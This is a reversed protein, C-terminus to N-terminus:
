DLIISHTGFGTSLREGTLDLNNPVSGLSVEKAYTFHTVTDNDHYHVTVDLNTGISAGGTSQTSGDYRAVFDDRNATTDFYLVIRDNTVSYEERLFGPHNLITESETYGAEFGPPTFTIVIDVIEDGTLDAGPENSDVSTFNIQAILTTDPVVNAVPAVGAFTLPAKVSGLEVGITDTGTSTVTANYSESGDASGTYLTIQDGSRIPSNHIGTITVSEQTRLHPSISADLSSRGNTVTGEKNHFNIRAHDTDSDWAVISKDASLVTHIDDGRFIFTSM